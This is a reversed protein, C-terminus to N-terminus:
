SSRLALHGHITAIESGIVLSEVNMQELALAYLATLRESGCLCVASEPNASLLENAILFGSLCSRFGDGSIKSFVFDSRLRFLNQLDNGDAALRCGALFGDRDFERSTIQERFISEECLSHFLDGTMYTKFSVIKGDEVNVWKSHTGPLCISSMDPHKDLIGFVQVEEGRMVDLSADPNEHKAGGFLRANPFGELARYNRSFIDVTLPTFSYDAELWGLKSGAMGSIRIESNPEVKLEDLLKRMEKAYSSKNGAITKVGQNSEYKRLVKGEADVLYARLQSSGWDCVVLATDSGPNENKSKM